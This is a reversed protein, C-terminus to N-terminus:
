DVLEYNDVSDNWEGNSGANSIIMWDGSRQLAIIEEDGNLENSWITCNALTNKDTHNLCIAELENTRKYGEQRYLKEM